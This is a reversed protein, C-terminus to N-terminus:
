VAGSNAYYDHSTTCPIRHFTQRWLRVRIVRQRYEGAKETSDTAGFGLRRLLAKMGFNCDATKAVLMRAGMREFMGDRLTAMVDFLDDAKVGRKSMLHTEYDGNGLASFAILSIPHGDKEVIFNAYTPQRREALFERWPLVNASAQFWAPMAAKWQYARHLLHVNLLDTLDLHRHTIM